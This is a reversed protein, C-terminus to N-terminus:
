RVPKRNGQRRLSIGWDVYYTLNEPDRKIQKNLLKDIDKYEQLTLLINYYMRYYSNSGPNDEYLDKYIPAAKEFEGALEYEKALKIRDANSSPM